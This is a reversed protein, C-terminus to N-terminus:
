GSAQHLIVSLLGHPLIENITPASNKEEYKRMRKSQKQDGEEVDSLSENESREKRKLTSSPADHQETIEM